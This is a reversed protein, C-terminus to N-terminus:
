LYDCLKNLLATWLMERVEDGSTRCQEQHERIFGFLRSLRPVDVAPASMVWWLGTVCHLGAMRTARLACLTVCSVVGFVRFM